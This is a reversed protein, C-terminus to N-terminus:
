CDHIDSSVVLTQLFKITTKKTQTKIIPKPNTSFDISCSLISREFERMVASARIDVTKTYKQTLKYNIGKLIPNSPKASLTNQLKFVIRFDFNQFLRYIINLIGRFISRFFLKVFKCINLDIKM